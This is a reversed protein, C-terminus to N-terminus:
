GPSNSSSRQAGCRATSPQTVFRGGVDVFVVGFHVVVVLTVVDNEFLRVARDASAPMTAADVARPRPPRRRRRHYFLSCIFRLRGAQAAAVLVVARERRKASLACPQRELGAAACLSQM